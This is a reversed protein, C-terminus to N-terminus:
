IEAALVDRLSPASVEGADQLYDAYRQWFAARAEFEDSLEAFLRSIRQACAADPLSGDPM